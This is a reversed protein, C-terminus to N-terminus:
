PAAEPLDFWFDTEKRRLTWGTEAAFAHVARVVDAQTETCFDHGSLVGGPRVRTAWLRLDTLVGEYDHRGDLYAFHLSAPQCVAEAEGSLRRHIRVAAQRAFRRVVDRYVGEWDRMRWRRFGTEGRTERMWRGYDGDVEYCNWPDVLHLTRPQLTRLIQEAHDGQYVGIEAGEITKAALAAFRRRIHAVAPRALPVGHRVAWRTPEVRWSVARGPRPEGPRLKYAMPPLNGTSEGVQHAIIGRQLALWGAKAPLALYRVDSDWVARLLAPMDRGGGDARWYEHWLCFLRRVRPGRRFYVVGGSLVDIAASGIGAATERWSASGNYEALPRYAVLCADYRDLWGLPLAAEPSEILADADLMLTREFPTRDFLTTRVARNAEDPMEILDFTTARPWDFRAADPLNTVVHIPLECHKAAARASAAAVMAYEEGFAVYVVGRDRM